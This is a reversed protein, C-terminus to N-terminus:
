KIKKKNKFYFILFFFLIAQIVFIFSYKIKYFQLFIFPWFILLLYYFIVFPLRLNLFLVHHFHGLDGTFPSKKNAIRLMFLRLMDLGPILFILIIKEVSVLNKYILNTNYSYITILGIFSSLFLSGSNGLFYKGKYNLVFSLFIILIIFYYIVSFDFLITLIFLWLISISHALGNIGDSMNFANILLLLCLTTIFFSFFTNLLYIKKFDDFYLEKLLFFKNFYLFLIIITSLLLLKKTPSLNLIDDLIGIIFVPFLIYVLNAPFSKDDFLLLNIFILYILSLFILVGGILPTKVKHIKKNNPNDILNLKRIFFNKNIYILYFILVSCLNIFATFYSM